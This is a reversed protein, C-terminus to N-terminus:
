EGVTENLVKVKKAASKKPLFICHEMHEQNLKDDLYIYNCNSKFQLMHPNKIFGIEICTTSHTNMMTTPSQQTPTPVYEERELIICFYWHIQGLIIYSTDM